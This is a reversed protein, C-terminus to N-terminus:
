TIQQYLLLMVYTFSFVVYIIIDLRLLLIMQRDKSSSLYRAPFLAWFMTGIALCIYALPQTSRQRTRANRSTVLSRDISSLHLCFPSLRLRCLALNELSPNIQYGLDM